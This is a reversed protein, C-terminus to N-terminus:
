SLRKAPLEAEFSAREAYLLSPAGAVSFGLAALPEARVPGTPEAHRWEADGSRPGVRSTPSTSASGPPM